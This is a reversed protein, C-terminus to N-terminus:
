KHFHSYNGIQLSIHNYNDWVKIIFDLHFLIFIFISLFHFSTSNLPGEQPVFQFHLISSVLFCNNCLWWPFSKEWLDECFAFLNYFVIKSSIMFLLKDSNSLPLSRILNHLWLFGKRINQKYYM